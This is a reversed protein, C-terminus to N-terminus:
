GPSPPDMINVRVVQGAQLSAWIVLAALGGIGVVGAVLVVGALAPGSASLADTRAPAPTLITVRMVSGSYM